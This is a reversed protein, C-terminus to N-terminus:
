REISVDLCSYSFQFLGPFSPLKGTAQESSKYNSGGGVLGKGSLVEAWDQGSLRLRKAKNNSPFTDVEWSSNEQGRSSHM